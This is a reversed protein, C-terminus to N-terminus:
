KSTAEKKKKFVSELSLCVFLLFPFVAGAFLGIRLAIQEANVASIRGVAIDSVLGTLWPGLSCGMDGAMAMLGFLVAGGRPFTASGLSYTAPWLVAVTVGCFACGCLAFVANQALAAVLYCCVCAAASVMLQTKVKVRDGILGATIRGIGMFMAFLCPGALDGIFKDVGLGKQAFLSAWQAMCLESAGACLMIILFLLFRKTAFLEKANMLKGEKVLPVIPARLFVFINIAPILSWAIPLIRWDAGPFAKLYLTSLLVVLVQGWCYFSHL